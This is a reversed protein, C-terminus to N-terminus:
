IMRANRITSVTSYYVSIIDNHYPRFNKTQPSSSGNASPDYMKRGLFLQYKAKTFSSGHSGIEALRRNYM